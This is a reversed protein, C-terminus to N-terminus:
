DLTQPAIPTSEPSMIVLAEKVLTEGYSKDAEASRREAQLKALGPSLGPLAQRYWHVARLQLGRKALGSEQESFLWYENALDVMGLPGIPPALDEAALVKLRLNSGKALHPLGDSWRQKVLCLYSGLTYNAEPDDPTQALVNITSPVPQYAKKIDDLEKEIAQLRQLDQRRSNQDGNRGNQRRKTTEALVSLLEKAAAFDDRQVALKLVQEAEKRLDDNQAAYYPLLAKASETVTRRRVDFEDTQYQEVLSDTAQQALRFDGVAAANDRATELLVFHAASEGEVKNANKILEEAFDHKSRTKDGAKTKEIESKFVQKLLVKAKEREAEDPLPLRLDDQQRSPIASPVSAPPREVSDTAPTNASAVAPDANSASSAAALSFLPLAPQPDETLTGVRAYEDGGITLLFTMADAPISAPVWRVQGDALAVLFGGRDRGMTGLPHGSAAMQFDAPKSWAVAFEDDVMLLEIITSWKDNLREAEVGVPDAMVTNSGLPALFCTLNDKRWPSQYIPPVDSAAKLNAPSDWSEQLNFKAFQEAHGLYPLLLVRWSLKQGPAAPFRGQKLAYQRIALSIKKLRALTQEHRKEDTWAAAVPEIALASGPPLADAPLAANATPATPQVSPAAGEGSAVSASDVSASEVSAAEAVDTAPATETPPVEAVPDPARKYSGLQPAPKGCGLFILAALLVVARRQVQSRQVQSREVMM